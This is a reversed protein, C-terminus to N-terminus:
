RLVQEVRFVFAATIGLGCQCVRPTIGAMCRDLCPLCVVLKGEGRRTVHLRMEHEYYGAVVDAQSPCEKGDLQRLTCPIAPDFDLHEITQLDTHEDLRTASVM